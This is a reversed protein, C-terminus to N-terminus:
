VAEEYLSIEAPKRDQLLELRVSLSDVWADFDDGTDHFFWSNFAGLDQLSPQPVYRLECHVQVYHDHGGEANNIEFQRALDLTFMPPGSFAHTGYQFLLGDADPTAATAFRRRGFRLFAPWVDRTTLEALDRHGSELEDELFQLAESIPPRHPMRLVGRDSADDATVLGRCVEQEDGTHAHGLEPGWCGHQYEWLTKGGLGVARVARQGSFVAFTASPSVSHVGRDWGPRPLPFVATPAREGAFVEYLDYVELEQGNQLLARGSGTRRSEFAFGNVLTAGGPLKVSDHLQATISM